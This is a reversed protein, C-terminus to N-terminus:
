LPLPQPQSISLIRRPALSSFAAGLLESLRTTRGKRGTCRWCAEYLMAMCLHRCLWTHTCLVVWELVANLTCHPRAAAAPKSCSACRLKSSSRAQMCAKRLGFLAEHAVGALVVLAILGLYGSVTSSSLPAVWLTAHVGNYFTMHMM